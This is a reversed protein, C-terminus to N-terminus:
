FAAKLAALARKQLLYAATYSINHKQSYEKLSINHLITDKVIEWQKESLSSLAYQLGALLHIKELQNDESSPEILRKGKANTVDLLFLADVNYNRYVKQMLAYDLKIKILGPLLLYTDDKYAMIFELFYEWATNEADQGLAQVIYSTHAEKMVLPEFAECLADIAQQEGRQAALVQEKLENETFLNTYTNETKM